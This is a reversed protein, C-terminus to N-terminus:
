RVNCAPVMHLRTSSDRSNRLLDYCDDRIAMVRYEADLGAILVLSGRVIPDHVGGYEIYGALKCGREDVKTGSLPHFRVPMILEPPVMAAPELVESIPKPALQPYEIASAHGLWRIIWRKELYVMIRPHAARGGFFRAEVVQISLVSDPPKPTLVFGLEYLKRLLVLLAEGNSVTTVGEVNEIIIAWVSNPAPAELAAVIKPVGDTFAISRADRVGLRKDPWAM